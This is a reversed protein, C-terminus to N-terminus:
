TWRKERDFMLDLAISTFSVLWMLGIVIFYWLMYIAPPLVGQSFPKEETHIAALFFVASSFFILTALFIITVWELGIFFWYLNTAIFSITLESFQDLPLAATGIVFFERIFSILPQTFYYTIIFMGFISLVGQGLKSPIAFTGFEGYKTNLFMDRYKILNEIAGKYWRLRQGYFERLNKPAVTEVDGKRSHAVNWGNKQLRFCIEQDEVLSEEDFGGLDKILQTRYVGLAGPTVHIAHIKEMLNRLFIGVLYEVWQLKQWFNQPNYVKMASAIGGSEEDLESLINKIADEAVYSDADVCGFFETDTNELGTNLAAGKGQNEQNILKINDYQTYKEVEERTKDQSGDNVVIIQLKEKPYDVNHLAEITQAITNEENYAPVTITIEPWKELHKVPKRVEGHELFIILLFFAIFLVATYITWVLYTLM